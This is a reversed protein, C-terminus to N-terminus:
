VGTVVTSFEKAMPPILTATKDTQVHVVAPLKSAKAKKVAEPLKEVHEVFEGYCGIGEAIKDWRVPHLACGVAKSPDGFYFTQGAEVM